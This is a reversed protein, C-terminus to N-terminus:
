TGNDKRWYDWTNTKITSWNDLSSTTWSTVGNIFCCILGNEFHSFHRKVWVQRDYDRVLVKDDLKLRTPEAPVIIEPKDHYLMQTNSCGKIRSVGDGFYWYQKGNFTAIVQDNDSLEVKGFGYRLDFVDDNVKFM